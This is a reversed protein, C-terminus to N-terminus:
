TKVITEEMNYVLNILKMLAALENKDLKNNQPYEGAQLTKQADLQKSQFSKLQDDFYQQLLGKEKETPMRCLIRRFATQINAHGDPNAELLKQAFVRSAELVYPDNMMALAQLPTNTQLRKVECQDRNSADFLMMSPPPVTLKIFTYMGRRYLADGKDQQYTALVGRGSTASEWLGKPQYPKVSPGGIIPVLLGSSSLVLDRVLEAKLRVRPAHSLYINEPDNQQAEPSIKASQRYTASTVIKKMLKKIDWGNEMFDVALWDLLKPHSPLDGQMGFDGSTKVLGKGFIEQWMQNVFVRATLPNKEDVTWKALGLRNRPYKLTDYPLVSEIATAQVLTTPQDYVGRNLIYTPRVTDRDGLVSVTMAGTDKSNIFPMLNKIDSPTITLIPTKAPKSISVDGEYGAEKSNNFFAFLEYYSKQSIPDYKHDHCQACEATLGLIGKSYTRTKDLNYQIRYEEPIVGGEETYKHNRFFATALVQEKTAGPLLDGAIQWGIFDNYPMNNNFAHIVWDRWAWQTRINDDQYGYSDAYRGVDLWHIAMKEGYQPLNMLEEVMKEYANESKDALFRNMREETPPLGTLDLSLRKLLREKDAEPNPSLGKEALKEGIFYDIENRARSKEPIEPLPSKVPAVFSWHPEYVAGEEIWKKILAVEYSTLAGLHSDPTPMRYSTDDSTIRKFLESEEPKGKVIAFAGKTEQLAAFAFKPDDLRLGAERKNQDPGHCKFCKDSFIPRIHFNYSVTSPLKETGSNHHNVCAVFFIVLCMLFSVLILHKKTM